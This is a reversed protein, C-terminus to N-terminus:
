SRSACTDAGRVFAPLECACRPLFDRLLNRNAISGVDFPAKLNRQSTWGFHELTCCVEPAAPHSQSNRRSTKAAISKRPSPLAIESSDLGIIEELELQCTHALRWQRLLVYGATDPAHRQRMCERHPILALFSRMRQQTSTGHLLSDGQFDRGLARRGVIEVVAAQHAYVVGNREHLRASTGTTYM